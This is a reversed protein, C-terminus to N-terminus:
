GNKWGDTLQDMWSNIWGHIWGNMWGDMWGDMWWKDRLHIFAQISSHKDIYNNIWENKFKLEPFHIDYLSRLLRGQSNSPFFPSKCCSVYM